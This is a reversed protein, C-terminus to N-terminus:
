NRIPAFIFKDILLGDERGAIQFTQTLAGEKVKFNVGRELSIFTTVNLWKWQGKQASGKDEVNLNLDTIAYGVYSLGNVTIWDEANDVSKEGFGSGYFFSDDNGGGDGVKVKVFLDYVGAKPFKVTYTIVK